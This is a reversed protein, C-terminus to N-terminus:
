VVNLNKDLENKKKNKMPETCKLCVSYSDMAPCIIKDLAGHFSKSPIMKHSFKKSGIVVWKVSRRHLICDNVLIQNEMNSINM